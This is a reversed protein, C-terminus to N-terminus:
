REAAGALDFTSSESYGRVMGFLRAPAPLVVKCAENSGARHPRCDYDAVTPALGVRVYLDADGTGSMTFSYTGAPLVATEFHLEEDREAVGSRAMGEWDSVEPAEGGGPVYVNDQEGSVLVVQSSDVGQFIQEYTRPAQYRMLSKVLALTANPMSAFFAPLANTIVDTYKTGLEDDENVKAHADFLATDVYAYTDCGNLFVMAYQGAQWEGKGALARINAGLGAHGNYVILDAFRSLEGYRADFAAGATRVNDVLLAHVVVRHTDDIKASYMVDPADIGPRRTAHRPVVDLSPSALMDRIQSNFNNYARVGADGEHTAGDEYKGFVAVVQFVSDSWVQDYEPYKGTTNVESVSVTAKAEIIEDAALACSSRQPRYYYWMSGSDIDHAGAEVCDHSYKETFAKQGKKGVNKPLQFTYSDPVGQSKRWAVQLVADYKVMWEGDAPATKLNTLEVKDLRGVADDGNLQGVTYLLQDKIAWQPVLFDTTRLEATFALELIIAEASTDAKGPEVKQISSPDLDAPEDVAGDDCATLM